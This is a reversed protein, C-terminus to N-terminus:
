FVLSESITREIRLGEDDLEIRSIGRERMLKEVPRLLEALTQVAPGRYMNIVEDGTSLATSPARPPASEAFAALSQTTEAEIVKMAADAHAKRELTSKNKTGPRRGRTSKIGLENRARTLVSNSVFAPAGLGCQFLGERIKENLETNRLDSNVKLAEVAIEIQRKYTSREPTNVNSM